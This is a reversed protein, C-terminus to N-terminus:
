QFSPMATVVGVIINDFGYMLPGITLCVCYAIVKPNSKVSQWISVTTSDNPDAATQYELFEVNGDGVAEPATGNNAVTM